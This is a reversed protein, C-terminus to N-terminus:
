RFIIEVATGTKIGHIEKANKEKVFLELNGHSGWLANVNSDSGDSYCSSIGNIDIKNVEILIKSNKKSQSIKEYDEKRINTILNGFHDCYIIAGEIKDGKIRSLPIETKVFNETIRGLDEPKTGSAIKASVPAMIDRGHFTASPSDTYIDTQALEFVSINKERKEIWSIIGNDPLVFFYDQTKVILIKRSSGVGPDVVALHVTGRPFFHYSNSLVFGSQAINYPEIDHTIDVIPVHPCISLIVGKIVGTFYDSNGFDTILSIVM